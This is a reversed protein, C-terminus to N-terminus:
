KRGRIQYCIKQLFNQKSIAMQEQYRLAKWNLEEAEGPNESEFNKWEEITLIDAMNEALFQSVIDKFREENYKFCLIASNCFNEISMTSRIQELCYVKLDIIKYKDSMQYLPFLVELSNDEIRSAYIYRLFERFTVADCDHIEIPSNDNEFMQDKFKAAFYPTRVGIVAKHTKFERNQVRITLDNYDERLLLEEM